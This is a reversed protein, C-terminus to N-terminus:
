PDMVNGDCAMVRSPARTGDLRTFIDLERSPFRTKSCLLFWFNKDIHPNTIMDGYKESPAIGRSRM